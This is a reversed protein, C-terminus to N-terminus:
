DALLEPGGAATYLRIAESPCNATIKYGKIGNDATTGTSFEPKIYAQLCDCGLQYYMEEDCNSDRFMIILPVNMLEAVTEHLEAYSGALVFEWNPDLKAFGFEGISGATIQNKRPATTFKMFGRGVKFEHATAIKVKDGLAAFPAVPCKVGGEVFDSLRAILVYDSVGTSANKPEKLNVLDYPM